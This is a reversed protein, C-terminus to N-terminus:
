IFHCPSSPAQTTATAPHLTLLRQFSLTIILLAHSSFTPHLPTRITSIAPLSLPTLHPPPLTSFLLSETHLHPPLTVHPPPTLFPTLHPPLFPAHTISTAPHLPLVLSFAPGPPAQSASTAPHSLAHASTTPDSPPTLLRPPLAHSDDPALILRGNVFQMM